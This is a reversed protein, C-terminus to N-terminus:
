PARIIRIEIRRNTTRAAETTDSVILPDSGRGIATIQTVPVGRGTLYSRVTEARRQSLRTNDAPILRDHAFGAVEAVLQPDTQLATVVSDLVPFAEPALVSGRLQWVAGPITWSRDTTAPQPVSDVPPGVLPCGRSDVGIGRRTEPCQDLGDLVADGDADGPCGLADVAADKPTAPCRDLGDAVSDGDSDSPCGRADVVAGAPTAPCEDLGDLYGDRDSDHTCGAADVAAGQVSNPCRDIGDPVLDGDRDTPCGTKDVLTGLRTSECRDSRDYVGDGDSDVLPRSGLMLSVGGQLVTNSFKLTTTSRNVTAEYRMLLTPTLSIRIGVGGQVMDGSGCIGFGLMSSVPCTGGYSAHGYGGKLFVFTSNNLGLNALAWAGITTVGVRRQLPTDTVPKAYTGELELSLPGTVWYGARLAAGATSSLETRSDYLHYGVAGSLEFRYLRQAALPPAIAGVLAALLPVLRLPFLRM